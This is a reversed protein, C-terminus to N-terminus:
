YIDISAVCWMGVLVPFLALSRTCSWLVNEDVECRLGVIGRDLDASGVGLFSVMSGVGLLGSRFVKALTSSVGAAETAEEDVGLEGVEVALLPYEHAESDPKLV